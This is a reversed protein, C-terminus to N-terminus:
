ALVGLHKLLWVCDLMGQRYLLRNEREDQLGAQFLIEEMMQKQDSTLHDSMLQEAQAWWQVRYQYEATKERNKIAHDQLEDLFKDWEIQHYM